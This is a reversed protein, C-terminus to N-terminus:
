TFKRVEKRAEKQKLYERKDKKKRGKGLGMEIKILGNKSYMKIAVLTLNENLKGVLYNIEKNKMLLKKTRESDYDEPANKPQFSSIKLGIIYIEGGRIIGYSGKLDAKGMKISKVEHGTLEIGAEFKESIDYDFKIKKNEALIKVGNSIKKM